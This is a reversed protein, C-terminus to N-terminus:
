GTKRAAQARYRAASQRMWCEATAQEVESLKAIRARIRQVRQTVAARSVELERALCAHSGAKLLSLLYDSDSDSLPTQPVAILSQDPRLPRVSWGQIEEALVLLTERERIRRRAARWLTRDAITRSFGLLESLTHGRFQLLAGSLMQYLVESIVDELTAECLLDRYRIRGMRYVRGKVFREMRQYLRLAEKAHPNTQLACLAATFVAEEWGPEVKRARVEVSQVSCSVMLASVDHDEM